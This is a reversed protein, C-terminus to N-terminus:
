THRGAERDAESRGSEVVKRLRSLMMRHRLQLAADLPATHLQAVAGRLPHEDMTILSGEGWPKVSIAIRATGLRGASAELELQGPPECVRVITHGRETLPGMGITYRLATGVEPWRGESEHTERTGVVWKQYQEADGLVSWVREPKRNVWVHRVAM